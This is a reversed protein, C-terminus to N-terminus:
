KEICKHHPSSMGFLYWDTQPSAWTIQSAAFHLSPKMPRQTFGLSLKHIFAWAFADASATVPSTWNPGPAPLSPQGNCPALWPVLSRFMDRSGHPAAADCPFVSPLLQLPIQHFLMLFILVLNGLFIQSTPNLFYLLASMWCEACYSVNVKIGQKKSTKM